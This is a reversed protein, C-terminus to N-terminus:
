PLPQWNPSGDFAPNSTLRQVGTGNSNMTFIEQDGDRDSEFAIKGNNGPFAAQVPQEVAVLSLLLAAVAAALLAVWLVRGFRESRASMM